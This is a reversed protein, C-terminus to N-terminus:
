SHTVLVKVVLYEVVLIGEIYIPDERRASCGSWLAPSQAMLLATTHLVHSGSSCQVTAIPEPSTTYM